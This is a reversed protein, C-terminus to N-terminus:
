ESEDYEVYNFYHELENFDENEYQNIVENSMAEILDVAYKRLSATGFMKSSYEQRLKNVKPYHLTYKALKLGDLDKIGFAPKAILEIFDKLTDLRHILYKLAINSVLGENDILENFFKRKSGDLKFKISTTFDEYVSNIENKAYFLGQDILNYEPNNLKDIFEDIYKPRKKEDIAKYQYIYNSFDYITKTKDNNIPMSLIKKTILEYSSIINDTNLIKNEIQRIINELADEIKSSRILVKSGYSQLLFAFENGVVTISLNGLKPIKKPFKNLIMPFLENIYGKKPLSKGFKSELQHLIEKKIDMNYIEPKNAQTKVFNFLVDQLSLQNSLTYMTANEIKIKEGNLDTFKFNKILETKINLSFGSFDDVDDEIHIHRIPLPYTVPSGTQINFIENGEESVYKATGNEHLHGTFVFKIGMDAFVEIPTKGDLRMDKSVFKKHWQKIVFPGFVLECNRFNPIIAHHAVIFIMDKRIKAEAIKDCAWIVQNEILSGIVNEKGDKHSSEEDCSYISTDLGIITLGYKKNEKQSIRAAYSCYGHGYYSYKEDRKYKKNITDLYSKFIESNKYLELIHSNKYAFSYINQFEEPSINEAKENKSYDFAKSNNIDHNGPLIFIERNKDKNKWAKLIKSVKQHSIKEGDKTLDGPIIIYKSGKSDALKLSEKLLAESEVLLKRDFKTFTVFDESDTMLESALVHTDSIISITFNNNVSKM